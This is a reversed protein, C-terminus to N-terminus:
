VKGAILRHLFLVFGRGCFSTSVPTGIENHNVEPVIARQWMLKSGGFLSACLLQQGVRAQLLARQYM